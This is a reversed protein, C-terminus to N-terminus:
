PKVGSPPKRGGSTWFWAFLVAAALAAGVVAWAPHFIGGAIFAFGAVLAM